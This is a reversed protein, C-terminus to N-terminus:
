PSLVMGSPSGGTFEELYRACTKYARQVMEQDIQPVGCSVLHINRTHITVRTSDADRYPYIAVIDKEDTLVVQNRRLPILKQMGIGRFQEGETAFRMVLGGTLLDADFAAIPIGCQASALNYADVATNIRPLIGKMLARRVLAESAPRTKTPDVGVKWFFDRYARFMPDDKINERTFRSQLDRIVEKKRLELPLMEPLILVSRVEGEAVHIGPFTQLMDLTFEMSGRAPMPIILFRNLIVPLYSKIFRFHMM